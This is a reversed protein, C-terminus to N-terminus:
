FLIKLQHHNIQLNHNPWSLYIFLYKEKFLFLIYIFHILNFIYITPITIKM